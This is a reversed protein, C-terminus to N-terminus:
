IQDCRVHIAVTNLAQYLYKQAVSSWQHGFVIFYMKLFVRRKMMVMFVCVCQKFDIWCVGDEHQLYDGSCWMHLLGCSCYTVTFHM